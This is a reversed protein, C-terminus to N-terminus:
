QSFRAQNRAQEAYKPDLVVGDESRLSYRARSMLSRRITEGNIAGEPHKENWIRIKGLAATIGDTDENRYAMAYGNLLDSRRKKLADEFNRAASNADYRENLESPSFGALQLLTEPLSLEQMIPDGRMSNVGENAFRISKMADKVSKPSMTEVGRWAHGKAIMNGGRLTNVLMGGVVPGAAQELLYDALAQGELERDPSRFWLENLGVRSGFEAGTLSEVPGNTLVRAADAGMLDALMNRFETEADFPEDDDGFVAAAANLVDFMLGTLPLGMVGAFMTTMGLVGALKKRAEKKVEPSEGKMSLFANRGLFWSMNMSYQKFQLLVKAVNSQMWRARNANTYDFHTENVIDEAYQVAEHFSQGSDMALRFSALATAERNVIEAHHFMYSVVTMTKRALPNFAKTDSESLGALNHSMTHDLTGSKIWLAVADKEIASLGRTLDGTTNRLSRGMAVSLTNWAKGVGHRAALVPFTVIATQTLNVLAAAPTMGLYWIFGLATLRSANKSDKPNMVWEHRLNLESTMAAAKAAREPDDGAIANTASKMASLAEDLKHSHRVRAIQFSGHFINGSFARLADDSYGVVKKRHIFHKRMSLDPLTRLYLQWVDDLIDAQVGSEALTSELDAMFGSSVGAVQRAENIKRGAENLTYGRRALDSQAARWDQITEYMFFASQGDKTANIWFEGFRALPFYPGEIRASEFTQRVEAIHKARTRDSAETAEIRDIIAQQLAESQAEYARKAQTYVERGKAPLAAFRQVLEPYARIRERERELLAELAGREMVLPERFNKSAERLEDNVMSIRRSISEATVQENAGRKTDGTMLPRYDESPDVGAITTDHMMNATADAGKRDKRQFVEWTDSVKAGMDQLANRDTAMRQVIKAYTDVHILGIDKALEALHRLALAGLWAPRANEIPAGSKVNNWTARLKDFVSDPIESDMTDVTAAPDPRSYAMKADGTNFTGRNSTSKIQGPKFAIWQGVDTLHIGDFGERELTARLERAQEGSAIAQLETSTMAKPNTIALYATVISAEAPVGKAANEAYASAESKNKTFFFGLPASMHTTSAGLRNDSFADFEAGTGHYVELPNGSKDLVKSDGFWTLFFPSSTGMSRWLGQAFAAIAPTGREKPTLGAVFAADDIYEAPQQRSFLPQGQMVGERMAQTLDISHQKRPEPARRAELKGGLLEEIATENLQDGNASVAGALTAGDNMAKVIPRLVQSNAVRNVAYNLTKGTLPSVMVNTGGSEAVDLLGRMQELSYDPGSYVYKTAGPVGIVTEGVKGGFRKAWKNVAKPLINDYFGKMGEGGVKLDLGRFMGGNQAIIKEALEKGLIDPLDDNGVHMTDVRDANHKGVELSWDGKNTKTANVFKIHKSLDYREAQQEGTTWAIRDFGKDVAERVMRKFALMAWEDTGKFPADPVRTSRAVSNEQYDLRAQAVEIAKAEDADPLAYDQVNTVFEGNQDRVEWYGDQRTATTAKRESAVDAAAIYGKKRGAQHWDSQIEEIFLVRKGDADTRENFRVHALINPQDFHSSHFDSNNRGGAGPAAAEHGEATRKAIAIAEAETAADDLSVESTFSGGPTNLRVNWGDYDSGDSERFRSVSEVTAESVYNAPPLTLLLERYNEGGPTVYAGTGFRTTDPNNNKKLRGLEVRGIGLERSADALPLDGAVWEAAISGADEIEIDTANPNKSKFLDVAAAQLEKPGMVKNNQELTVDQVQVENARVFGVLQERTVNEKGALWADVGLWDRESQKFEGRRQAGDLWGKWQEATGKKPAGKGFEVSALMASYFPDANNSFAGATAGQANPATRPRRGDRLYRASKAIMDRLEHQNFDIKFGLSRLFRTMAAVVKSVIGRGMGKEAMVAVAERVFVTQNVGKYRRAIEAFLEPYTGADVMRQVLATIDAWEKEGAIAEIGYHGVAEHALVRLARAESTLNGAVLYVSGEGDYWGEVDEWGKEMRAAEPLDQAADVVTVRPASEGWTDTVPAIAARIEGARKGTGINNPDRQSRAPQTDDSKAAALESTLDTLRQRKERLSEEQEFPKGSQAELAPLDEKAAALSARMYDAGTTKQAARELAALAGRMGQQNFGEGGAKLLTDRSAVTHKDDPDLLSLAAADESRDLVLELGMMTGLTRTPSKDTMKNAIDAIRRSADTRTIVTDGDITAEFTDSDGMANQIADFLADKSTVRGDGIALSFPAKDKGGKQEDMAAIAAQKAETANSYVKGEVKVTRAEARQHMGTIAEDMSKTLREAREIKKPLDRINRKARDINDNLGFMRRRHARELLELRDIEAMLTVRELLKPDGSALAAMEAMGVADEDNFEMSFAGDYKRIGNITKLKTANLDWMKADVTRETAYALIEVEFDDRISDGNEDFGIRNGQRIIRGERQEIDSPKWTVDGHHLGVLRDQVNTGAGMRPTSGILVRVEGAKVQDFLAQKQVDNNAEQVFRIEKEPIGRAILNDKIQQYANWGGTQASRVEEISAADYATDGFTFEDLADTARRYAEENGDRAAQDRTAILKDWAKIVKHDDKGKPVSRDLFILQTGKEANWQDYIRKVNDSIVELKGGEEKSPNRSEVARVDLSLKRARDMLRLRAKNREIPNTIGDLGDFASMVQELMASQAQTPKIIVQQREGGKVKPLPFEKGTDETYAKKIDENTVADTFSYYLEMLSRMNSWTRGLRNVEKLRGSETPEFKTDAEVFQSRWADFHELGLDSLDDAALYRMMTFMEVASNSIPTGTMFTVSGTKSERLVRVKNYLDYAKQSGTKDGMGRVGTLRSSYFLNKFEHAEDVTLDDVGLQEFTLLRDRTKKGLGEMRNELKELLREAEKVNFPKGFGSFGDEEAQQKAEEIAEVAIAIEHDLYRREADESIGIFGFSSHPVIVLDWDGTAIKAFLKRRRSREFDKKGAALVKAGPYLRFADAAFQQVMHNPVTIMPKRSLGMRRRELARAIGTFTKGAGVAHDYLTFRETIGRWIANKQHRRMSIIADPVKGPLTLHSGDHQRTVRTNFKDNFIDVLTNRRDGDQFVWDAFENSIQKVKLQALATAEADTHTKGERDKWTVKVTRSNLVASVLDTATFQETGWELERARDSATNSVTFSNTARSFRVKANGGVLHKVFDAYIEGPVWSAGMLATIQEAGWREPQVKELADVNANLGADQAAALKRRVNGSLYERAPEWAHAEPDYFALPNDGKSLEAEAQARDVGLLSAVRDVDLKGSESLTIFLADHVSDAATPPEYPVVVRKNLIPAPDASEKRPKEGMKEARAKTIEPRYSLELAQVLAGDPMDAVIASNKPASIFGNKKIFAQYANRLDTRNEDLDAASSDEAEMTLQKTLLDRLAVMEKLRAFKTKGLLMSAPIDSESEFEQREYVNNRGNKVKNGDADLKEVMRFYRGNAALMLQNSWPSKESLERTTLEYDGEPTEREIVQLMRGDTEIRVAGAERGELAVRLAGVMAEHRDKAAQIPDNLPAAANEPLKAVAERMLANLDTGKPVHVRMTAGMQMKGTMDMTGLVMEPNDIFYQSLTMAEGGAPDPVTGTDVWSPIKAAAESQRNIDKQKTAPVRMADIANEIEARETESRKRFFLIDTVVDTRANEKFAVDPLRIAGLLDARAAMALRADRGKADMLYRSVVMSMVGGERLADLGAIFFQNHISHGNVEPKAQFKLSENGFPPNGVVLDFAGDSLPVQQFGAHLVGAQPYLAAAMRATLSDYEVGVFRTDGALADPMLGLFNGTGMAPELAMGGKFGLRQLGDWIGRVVTQSTYHANRTSRRAAKLEDATLLGALQAGREQWKEKFNGDPDAFANALGGWGVYRALTRQEEATARRQEREITKLTQIAAINDNFKEVEGGEGLRVDDTITFNSAPIASPSRTPEPDVRGRGRGRGAGADDGSVRSGKKGARGAGLGSQGRGTRTEASDTSSTGSGGSRAGSVGPVDSEPDGVAGRDGLQPAKAGVDGRSEPESDTGSSVGELAESSEIGTNAPQDHRSEKPTNHAQETTTPQRKDATMPNREVHAALEAALEAANLDVRGWQNAGSKGYTGDTTRYMLAIGSTTMPVVGRLSTDGLTAYVGTGSPSVMHLHVDGSGATGSENVHVAKSPKGKRDLTVTYGQDELIESVAKLYDRAEKLFADKTTNGTERAGTGDSYGNISDTGFDDTLKLAGRKSLNPVRKKGPPKANGVAETKLDAPTLLADFARAADDPTDMGERDVGPFYRVGEYFSLLYPKITDGFADVMEKAYDGFKRVGEEIYAGAITVGASYMEPDIGSNLNGLKSKLLAKAAAVKDSTFITNNAFRDTPETREWSKSLEARVAQADASLTQNEAKAEREKKEAQEKRAQADAREAREQPTKAPTGHAVKPAPTSPPPTADEVKEAIAERLAPRLTVPAKPSGKESGKRRAIFGGQETQEIQYDAPDLGRAAIEPNVSEARKFGQESKKGQPRIEAPAESAAPAAKRGAAPKTSQNPDRVWSEFEAHTMKTIGAAGQTVKQNADNQHFDKSYNAYYAKRAEAENAAGLIVKHEDFKGAVKQDVVFVPLSTDEAKETLFVDVHDKDKGVTGKIYGYHHALAPWAENRKSGAPNEISIDLGGIKAHGKKYNGAEKQADTPLARDNTPSTAAEAAAAEVNGTSNNGEAEQLLELYRATVSEEQSQSIAAAGRMGGHKGAEIEARLTALHPDNVWGEDRIKRKDGPRGVGDAISLAREYYGFPLEKTKTFNTWKTPTDQASPSSASQALSTQAASPDDPTQLPAQSDTQNAAATLADKPSPATQDASGTRAQPSSQNKADGTNAPLQAPEQAQAPQAAEPSGQNSPLPTASPSETSQAEAGQGTRPQESQMSAQAQADAAVSEPVSAVKTGSGAMESQRAPATDIGAEGTGSEVPTAATDAQAQNTPATVPAGQTTTEKGAREVIGRAYAALTEDPLGTLDGPQSDDLKLVQEADLGAATAISSLRDREAKHAANRAAVSAVSEGSKMAESFAAQDAATGDDIYGSPQNAQEAEASANLADSLSGPTADPFPVAPAAPAPINAPDFIDTEPMAASPAAPAAASPPAAAPPPAANRTLEPEPNETPHTAPSLASGAAHMGGGLLGGLAAGTGASEPVGDMLGVNPDIGQVGVNSGLQNGGEQITEETAEKGITSLLEKAGQRSLLPAHDLSRTFIRGELGATVRGGAAGAIGGVTAAKLAAVNAMSDKVDDPSEGASVRQQYEPNADWTEQPLTAIEQRAQQASPGAEQMAENAIIQRELSKKGAAMAAEKTAGREIAKEAAKAVTGRATGAMSALQPVQEALFQSALVPETLVKKASAFFGETDALEQQKRRLLPTKDTDTIRSFETYAGTVGPGDKADEGNVLRNIVGQPKKIIKDVTGGTVTNVLEAMGGLMNGTGQIVGVGLDKAVQGASRTLPEEAPSAATPRVPKPADDFFNRTLEPKDFFNSM